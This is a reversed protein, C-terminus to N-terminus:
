YHFYERCVLTMLQWNQRLSPMHTPRKTHLMEARISCRSSARGKGELETKKSLIALLQLEQDDIATACDQNEFEIGLSTM